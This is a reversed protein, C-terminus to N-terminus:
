GLPVPGHPHRSSPSVLVKCTLDVSMHRELRLPEDVVPQTGLGRDALGPLAKAIGRERALPEIVRRARDPEILQLLVDAGRQAADLAIRDRARDRHDRQGSADAGGGDRQQQAV